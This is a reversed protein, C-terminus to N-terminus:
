QHRARSLDAEERQNDRQGDTAPWSAIESVARPASDSRHSGFSRAYVQTFEAGFLLIMASYYLWVVIAVFAGAAGYTSSLGSRALYLSIAIKGLGFLLATVAAGVWVDRWGIHVDPLVKYIAAFLLTTVVFSIGLDLLHGREVFGLPLRSAFFTLVSSLVVSAFFSVLLLAGIGLVMGFSLIRDRILYYLGGSTRPAADWIMNLSLQLQGFAGSAGILLTVLSIATALAGSGPNATQQLMQQVLPQASPGAIGTLQQLVQDRVASQGLVVGAVAIIIVLVPSLSFITYFALAAAHMDVRDESWEQVTQRLLMWIQRPLQRV